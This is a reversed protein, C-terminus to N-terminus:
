MVLLVCSAFLHLTYRSASNTYILVHMCSCLILPVARAHQVDCAPLCALTLFGACRVPLLQLAHGIEDDESIDDYIQELRAAVLLVTAVADKLGHPSDAHIAISWYTTSRDVDADINGSSAAGGGDAGGGGVVLHGITAMNAPAASGLTLPRINISNRSATSGIDTTEEAFMFGQAHM